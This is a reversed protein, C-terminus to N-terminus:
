DNEAEWEQGLRQLEMLEIHARIEEHPTGKGVNRYWTEAIGAAERLGAVRGEERIRDLADQARRNWENVARTRDMTGCDLHHRKGRQNKCWISYTEQADPGGLLRAESGCFPCPLLEPAQSDTM